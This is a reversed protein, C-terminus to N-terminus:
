NLIEIQGDAVWKLTSSGGEVEPTAADAMPASMMVARSYMPPQYGGQSNLSLSVLKYGKGGLARTAVDARQKFANIAQEMLQNEHQLRTSDAVSFRMSGMNMSQLLQGTLSSLQAFNTSELRLEAREQWAIIKKGKDDHVPSSHRSGMSLKVDTAQKSQALANNLTRTITQALVAPDANREETYLTVHMLDHSVELAAEARLSVRNYSTDAALASNAAFLCATILLAPATTHM